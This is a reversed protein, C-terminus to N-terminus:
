RRKLIKLQHLLIVVQRLDAIKNHETWLEISHQHRDGVFEATQIEKHLTVGATAAIATLAIIGMVVVM